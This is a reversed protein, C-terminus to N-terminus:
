YRKDCQDCSFKPHDAMHAFYSDAQDKSFKLGCLRCAINELNGLGFEIEVAGFGHSAQELKVGSLLEEGDEEGENSSSKPKDKQKEPTYTKRKQQRKQRAAKANAPKEQKYEDDHCEEEGEQGVIETDSEVEVKVSALDVVFTPEGKTQGEKDCFKSKPITKRGNKTGKGAAASAKAKANKGKGGQKNSLNKAGSDLTKPKNKSGAPRGRGRRSDGQGGSVLSGEAQDCSEVTDEGVGVTRMIKQNVDHSQHRNWASRAPLNNEMDFGATLQHLLDSFLVSEDSFSLSDVHCGTCDIYEQCLRVVDQMQLWEATAMVVSLMSTNFSLVGTYMMNLLCKVVGADLTLNISLCFSVSSALPTISAAPKEGV